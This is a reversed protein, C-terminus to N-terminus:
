GLPNDREFLILTARGAETEAALEAVAQRFMDDYQRQACYVSFREHLEEISARIEQLREDSRPEELATLLESDIHEVLQAVLDVAEDVAGQCDDQPPALDTEIMTAITSTPEGVQSDDGTCASLASLLLISLITANTKSKM